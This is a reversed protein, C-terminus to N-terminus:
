NLNEIEFISYKLTNLCTHYYLQIDIVNIIEDYYEIAYASIDANIKSARMRMLSMLIEYMPNSPLKQHIFYYPELLDNFTKVKLFEAIAYIKKKHTFCKWVSMDLILDNCKTKSNFLKFFYSPETNIRFTNYLNYADYKYNEFKYPIIGHELTNMAFLGKLSNSISNLKNIDKINLYKLSDNSLANYFELSKIWNSLKSSTFYLNAYDIAVQTVRSCYKIKYDKAFNFTMLAKLPPYNDANHFTIFKDKVAYKSTINNRYTLHRTELKFCATLYQIHNNTGIFEINKVSKHNVNRVRAADGIILM